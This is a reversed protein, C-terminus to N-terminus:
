SVCVCQCKWVCEVCEEVGGSMYVCERECALCMLTVRFKLSVLIDRGANFLNRM